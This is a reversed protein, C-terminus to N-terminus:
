PIELSISKITSSLLSFCLLNIGPVFVGMFLLDCILFLSLTNITKAHFKKLSILFFLESSESFKIFM